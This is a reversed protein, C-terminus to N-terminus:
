TVYAELCQCNWIEIWDNEHEFNQNPGIRNSEIRNLGMRNSEIYDMPNLENSKIWIQKLPLNGKSISWYKAFKRQSWLWKKKVRLWKQVELGDFCSRVRLLPYISGEPGHMDLKFGNPETVPELLCENVKQAIELNKPLKLLWGFKLIKTKRFWKAEHWTLDWNLRTMLTILFDIKMEIQIQFTTKFKKPLKLLVWIESNQRKQYFKLKLGKKNHRSLLTFYNM